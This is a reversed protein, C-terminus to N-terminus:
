AAVLALPGLKRGMHTRLLLLAIVAQLTVSGVSLMWFDQLSAWPRTSLWLAPAVFTLIRSGSSILSPRTDGFAQFMGSCSFVLGTAVFNWSAVHLYGVAVGAVAPDTTFPAVLVEAKWQCFLTLALMIGSSIVAANLFTARVRDGQRAGFNQGAIPACAFAVAMAPLFISQSVRSGIGFGAQAQAGFARICWYVVTTAVFLLLLEGSAPLGVTCIRKWVELRPRLTSLQLRLRPQLRNFMVSLILTGLVAAISSALGAGTVGLPHGTGWGAILVPALVANLVVSLSQLLMPTGVVGSARLASSMASLPFLVALSPLFAYLYASAQAATGADASLVRVAAGGGAYGLALLVVTALTALSMAQEFILQADAEDKRGVAQSILALAGVSVLQAASMVVFTSAGAAAVGAVADKGLHSVFYLDVLLYLTQVVLGAGIFVAMGLLHRWIVGQTMDRM